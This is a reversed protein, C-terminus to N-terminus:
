WRLWFRGIGAGLSTVIGIALLYWIAVYFPSDNTCHLAYILAGIGGAALGAVAGAATPSQPAGQRLAFLTAGLPALAILPVLVLCYEPDFGLASAPWQEVPLMAMEAALGFGLPLLALFLLKVGVRPAHQPQAMRFLFLLGVFAMDAAVAVKLLYRWSSMAEGFDSRIELMLSFLLVAALLAAPLAYFLTRGASAPSRGQDAVLTGILDETKM